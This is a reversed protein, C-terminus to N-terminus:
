HHEYKLELPLTREYNGMQDVTNSLTNIQVISPWHALWKHQITSKTKIRQNHFNQTHIYPDNTGHCNQVTYIDKSWTRIFDTKVAMVVVECNEQMRLSVNIAKWM